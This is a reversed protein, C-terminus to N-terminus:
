VILGYIAAATGSFLAAKEDASAGAVTKKFANWLTVYDCTGFDVPFNSEFMSRNVGFAEICAHFYPQWESALFASTARPRQGFSPFNCFGMGLGGLKVAVNPCRAIEQIGHRWVAFREAHTGRYRGLGPPTGTHDLIIQTDPFARALETVDSLQPELVWADFTLGLPALHRFGDRFNAQAYRHPSKNLPGLVDPDADYPASNRIGRFREGAIQRHTELFPMVADGLSLDVHGIIGACLRNSGYWGSASMAAVGTAFETEGISQREIPGDARYFAGCETFITAVVNHGTDTDRLFDDFLYRNVPALAVLAPHTAEEVGPYNRRDWLHHHADIIPLDADIIPEVADESTM